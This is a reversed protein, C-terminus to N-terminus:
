KKTSLPNFFKFFTLALFGLFQRLFLFSSIQMTKHSYSAFLMKLGTPNRDPM